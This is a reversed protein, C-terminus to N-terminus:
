KSETKKLKTESNDKICRFIHEQFNCVSNIRLYNTHVRPVSFIEPSLFMKKLADAEVSELCIGLHYRRIIKGLMGQQPGIVPVSYKAAYALVGSSQGTNEYPILIYDSITCLREITGYPVFDDYVEIELDDKLSTILSYFEERIEDRVYGAFILHFKKLEEVPLM